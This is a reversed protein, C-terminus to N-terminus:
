SYRLPRPSLVANAANSAFDQLEGVCFCSRGIEHQYGCPIGDLICDCHESM